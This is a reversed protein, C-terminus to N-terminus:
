QVLPGDAIPLEVGEIETESALISLYQAMARRYSAEELYGCISAEVAEFPLQQGDIRRGARIVHVGYPSKVPERCLEGESLAFLAQEFEPVTQGRGIQGLNGGQEKSPCASQERALDAFCAPDQEIKRILMRADGVALSYAFDDAPNASLLIHEAEVLTESAFRESHADYFRRAEESTANPVKVQQSILADIKADDDALKQGDADLVETAAIDQRDAESLLLQRIALAEAAAQWAAEADAAPHNQAEAAIAAPPIEVDGVRIGAQELQDAM